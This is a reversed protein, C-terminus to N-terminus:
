RIILKPSIYGPSVAVARSASRLFAPAALAMKPAAPKKAPAMELGITANPFISTEELMTIITPASSQRRRVRGSQLISLPSPFFIYNGRFSSTVSIFSM